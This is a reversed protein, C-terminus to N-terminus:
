GKLTLYVQFMVFAQNQQNEDEYLIWGDFSEQVHGASIYQGWEFKMERIDSCYQGTVNPQIKLPIQGSTDDGLIKLNLKDEM